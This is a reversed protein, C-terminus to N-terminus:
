YLWIVPLLYFSELDLCLLEESFNICHFECM